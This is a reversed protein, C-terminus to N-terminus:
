SRNERDLARLARDYRGAAAAARGDIARAVRARPPLPEPVWWEPHTLVQLRAHGGEALVERLPEQGFQPNRRSGPFRRVDVLTEVQAARLCEILEELPRTGHGITYVPM